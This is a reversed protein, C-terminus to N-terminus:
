SSCSAFGMVLGATTRYIFGKYDPSTKANSLKLEHPLFDPVGTGLILIGIPMLSSFNMSGDIPSFSSSDVSYLPGIVLDLTGTGRSLRHTETGTYVASSM